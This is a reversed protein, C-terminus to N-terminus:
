EVISDACEGAITTSCHDIIPCARCTGRSDHASGLLHIVKELEANQKKLDAVEDLHEECTSCLGNGFYGAEVARCEKCFIM